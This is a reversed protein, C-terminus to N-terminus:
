LELTQGNRHSQRRARPLPSAPTQSSLATSAGRPLEMDRCSLFQTGRPARQGAETVPSRWLVGEAGSACSVGAGMAGAM